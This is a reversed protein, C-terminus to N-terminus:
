AFDSCSVLGSELSLSISSFIRVYYRHRRRNGREEDKENSRAQDGGGGGGKELITPSHEPEQSKLRREKCRV